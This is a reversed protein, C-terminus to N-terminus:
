DSREEVIYIPPKLQLRLGRLMEETQKIFEADENKRLEDPLLHPIGNIIPYWRKCTKCLIIGYVIEEEKKILTRLELDEGKCVPCRLISMLWEKM